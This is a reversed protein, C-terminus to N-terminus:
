RSAFTKGFQLKGASIRYATLEGQPNYTTDLNVKKGTVKQMCWGLFRIGKIRSPVQESLLEDSLPQDGITQRIRNRSYDRLAQGITSYEQLQVPQPDAYLTYYEGAPRVPEHGSLYVEVPETKLQGSHPEMLAMTEVPMRDPQTTEGATHKKQPDASRNPKRIAQVALPNVPMRNQEAEQAQEQKKMEAAGDDKVAPNGGVVAQGNDRDPQTERNIREAQRPIDPQEQRLFFLGLIFLVCAAAALYYWARPQRYLPIAKKLQEKDPFVVSLDPRLRTKEFLSLESAKEPHVDLYAHLQQKEEPSLTGEVQGVLFLSLNGDHIVGKKLFDKDPFIVKEASPLQVNEFEDFAAQLGPNKELFLFLEAVLEAPLNGEHYDLFYIEYNDKNIPM